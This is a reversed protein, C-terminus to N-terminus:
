VLVESRASVPVSRLPAQSKKQHEKVINTGLAFGVFFTLFLNILSGCAGVSALAQPGAFRGVVITDATNFLQQLVNSAILPLSFLLMKKALSGSTM